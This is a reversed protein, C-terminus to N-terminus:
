KSLEKKIKTRNEYAVYAGILLVSGGLIYWMYDKTAKSDKLELLSKILKNYEDLLSGLIKTKNDQEKTLVEFEGKASALANKEDKCKSWCIGLEGLAYDTSGALNGIGDLSAVANKLDSIATHAKVYEVELEQNEFKLQANALEFEQREAQYRKAKSNQFIKGLIAAAAAVVGAVAAVVWGIVPVVAAVAAVTGAGTAVVNATKSFDSQYNVPKNPVAASAANVVSTINSTTATFSAQTVPAGFGSFGNFSNFDTKPDVEMYITEGNRTTAAVDTITQRKM